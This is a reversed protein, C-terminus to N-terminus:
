IGTELVGDKLNPVYSVSLLIKVILVILLILFREGFPFRKDQLDQFDQM